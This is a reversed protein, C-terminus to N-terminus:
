GTSCSTRSSPSPSCTTLGRACPRSRCRSSACFLLPVIPFAPVRFPRQTAPDKKRLFQLVELGDMGPMKIDSVVLDWSGPVYERTAAVPDTYAVVQYGHDLLVAEMMRCLGEENDVLMIRPSAM